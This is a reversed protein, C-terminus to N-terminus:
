AVRGRKKHERNPKVGLALIRDRIPGDYEELLSQVSVYLHAGVRSGKLKDSRIMRRVTTSDAGIATAAEAVTIYGAQRMIVAQERM